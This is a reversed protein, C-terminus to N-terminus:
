QMASPSVIRLSVGTMKKPTSPGVCGASASDRSKPTSVEPSTFPHAAAKMHLGRSRSACESRASFSTACHEANTHTRSPPPPSPPPSALGRRSATCLGKKQGGQPAFRVASRCPPSTYPINFLLVSLSRLSCRRELQLCTHAFCRQVTPSVGRERKPMLVPPPPLSLLSTTGRKREGKTHTHRCAHIRGLQEECAQQRVAAPNRHASSEKM